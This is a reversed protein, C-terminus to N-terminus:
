LGIVPRFAAGDFPALLFLRHVLAERLV